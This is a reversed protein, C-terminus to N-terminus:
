ARMAGAGRWLLTVQVFATVAALLFLIYVTSNAIVDGFALGRVSYIAAILFGLSNGWGTIIVCRTLWRQGPDSLCILGGVGAFALMALSNMLTGIHARRWAAETGPFDFQIAPLLPWAEIRGIAEFTFILGIVLAAAFLVAAQRVIRARLATSLSNLQM